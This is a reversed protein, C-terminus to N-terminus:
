CRCAPRPATTENLYRVAMYAQAYQLSIRDTDTQSNWIEQSEMERLDLLTGSLAAAKAIDADNYLRLRTADPRESELNVTYELYQATGENLWSPLNRDLSIEDLVLHAYEHTLLRLITTRLFDTRMYIGPRVGSRRYFGSEFGVITGTAAAVEEFLARNGALYIDPITTTQIGQRELIQETVWKLHSQLDVALTAPVLNSYYIDSISGQYKRLEIGVMERETGALQFQSVLYNEVTTDEDFALIVGWIGESDRTAVRLWTVRGSGDAFISRETLAEGNAQTFNVEHETIWEVPAGRPDLFGVTVGQWPELGELTFRIDRGALPSAPNIKLVPGGGDGGGTNVPSSSEVIGGSATGPVATPVPTPRPKPTPPLVMPTATPQPTATSPFVVPTPTPLPTPFVLATPTPPLVIATATPQATATPAPTVTPLAALASSLEEQVLRRVDDEPPACAAMILSIGGALAWLTGSKM